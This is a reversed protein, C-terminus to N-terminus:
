TQNNAAMTQSIMEKWRSRDEAARVCQLLKKGSSSTTWTSNGHGEADKGEKVYLEVIYLKLLRAAM